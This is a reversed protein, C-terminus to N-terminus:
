NVQEVPRELQFEVYFGDTGTDSFKVAAVRWGGDQYKEIYPRLIRQSPETPFFEKQSGTRRAAEAAERGEPSDSFKINVHESLRLLPGRAAAGANAAAMIRKFFNSTKINDRGAIDGVTSGIINGTSVGSAESEKEPFGEIGLGIGLKELKLNLSKLATIRIIFAITAGIVLGILLSNIDIEM